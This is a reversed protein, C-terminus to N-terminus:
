QGSVQAELQRKMCLFSEGDEDTALKWGCFNRIDRNVIARCLPCLEYPSQEVLDRLWESDQLGEDEASQVEILDQFEHTKPDVVVSLAGIGNARCIKKLDELRAEDHFTNADFLPIVIYTLNARNRYNVAQSIAQSVAPIDNVAKVEFSYMVFQDAGFQRRISFGVIDANEYKRGRRQHQIHEIYEMGFYSKVHDKIIEGLQDERKRNSGGGGYKYEKIAQRFSRSSRGQVFRFSRNLQTAQRFGERLDTVDMVEQEGDLFQKLHPLYEAVVEDLNGEIKGRKLEQEALEKGVAASLKIEVLTIPGFAGPSVQWELGLDKQNPIFRAKFDAWEAAHAGAYDMLTKFDEDTLHELASKSITKRFGWQQGLLIKAVSDLRDIISDSM